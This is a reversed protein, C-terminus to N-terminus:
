QAVYSLYGQVSVTTGATVLCLANGPPATFNTVGASLPIPQADIGATATQTGMTGTLITTGTGCSAGTGYEFQATAASTASTGVALYGGCVYISRQGFLAILQTTTASAISISVSSKASGSSACPDSVFPSTPTSNAVYYVSWSVGATGAGAFSFTLSLSPVSAVQLIPATIAPVTLVNTLSNINGGGGGGSTSGFVIFSSATITMVPCSASAGSALTFCTIYLAGATNGSSTNITVPSLGAASTTPSNQVIVKRYPTSQYFPGVATPNSTSTGSYFASVAPAQGSACGIQALNLRYGAYSGTATLGATTAGQVMGSNQDTADESIAFWTSGDNTAELRLTMSFGTTCTTGITYTITHISQGLNPIGCPTGNVPTCPFPSAAPTTTATTQATFIKQNVTQPSSFGIFQAHVRPTACALLLLLSCLSLFRKRMPDRGYKRMEPEM